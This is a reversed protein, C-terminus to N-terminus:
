VSPKSASLYFLSSDPKSKICDDAKHVIYESDDSFNTCASFIILGIIVIIHRKIVNIM